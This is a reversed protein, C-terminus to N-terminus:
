IWSWQRITSHNVSLSSWHSNCSTAHRHTHPMTHSTHSTHVGMTLNLMLMWFCLKLAPVEILVRRAKSDWIRGWSASTFHFIKNLNNLNYAHLTLWFAPNSFHHATFPLKKHKKQIQQTNHLLNCFCNRSAPSHPPVPDLCFAEHSWPTWTHNWHAKWCPKIHSISELHNSELMFQYLYTIRQASKM